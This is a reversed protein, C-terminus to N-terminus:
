IRMTKNARNVVVYEDDTPDDTKFESNNKNGNLDPTGNSTNITNAGKEKISNDNENDKEDFESQSEDPAAEEEKDRDM